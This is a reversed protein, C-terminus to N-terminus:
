ESALGAALQPSHASNRTLKLPWVTVSKGLGGLASARSFASFNYNPTKLGPAKCGTVGAGILASGHRQRKGGIASFDL